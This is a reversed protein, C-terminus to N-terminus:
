ACALAPFHAAATAPSISVSPERWQLSSSTGLIDRDRSAPVHGFSPTSRSPFGVLHRVLTAQHALQFSLSKRSECEPCATSNVDGRAGKSAVCRCFSPSMGAWACAHADNAFARRSSRMFVCRSKSAISRTVATAHVNLVPDPSPPEPPLDVWPPADPPVVLEPPRTPDPPADAVPPLVAVPPLPEPPWDEIPPAVPEPPDVAVPPAVPPVVAASDPPALPEPPLDLDPPRVPLPPVAAPPLVPLPPAAAPPLVPLPPVTDPPLVPLPPAAGPPLVPV